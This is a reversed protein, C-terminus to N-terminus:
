TAHIHFHVHVHVHVNAHVYVHVNAHVHVLVHYLFLVYVQGCVYGRFQVPCVIIQIKSILYKFATFFNLGISLM